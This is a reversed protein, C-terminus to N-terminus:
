VEEVLTTCWKPFMLISSFPAIRGYNSINSGGRALEGLMQYMFSVGGNWKMQRCGAKQGNIVSVLTEWSCM